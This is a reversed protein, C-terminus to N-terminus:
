AVHGDLFRRVVLLDGVDGRLMRHLASQGDFPSGTNAARIWADARAEDPLLINISQFISLLYSIREIHDQEVSGVRGFKWDYLTARTTLGLLRMQEAETLAWAKAIGLFARIAAGKAVTLKVGGVQDEEHQM